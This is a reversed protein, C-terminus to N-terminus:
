GTLGAHRTAWDGVLKLVRPDITTEIKGYEAPSGTTAPQMLHNIGPIETVTHDKNRKLAREMPLRNQAPPVQLDLSGYIVLIPQRARELVPAPDYTLFHRMWPSTLQKIQGDIAAGAQELGKQEAATLGSGPLKAKAAAWLARIREGARADNSEQEVAAIAQKELDSNFAYFAASHPPGAARILEGQKELIADGRVAPAGVLVLFAVERSRVAVAPAIVAGESHGILGIHRAEIDPRQHLYAVAALADSVFDETTAKAYDGTSKGVGRKDFRLVALGRRTLADALVLFVRHGAVAEDRTNPGSGAILLVAPFPGSGHPKTLTGALTIHAAPNEFSVDEVSYPYPPSPDQPRKPPAVSAATAPKLTLPLSIGGQTWTGAISQGDAALTGEFTGQIVKVDCRVQDKDLTVTDIPIGAAGQDPSDLTGKWQGDGTASFHFVVRLTGTPVSLTGMWTGTLPAAASAAAGIGAFLFSALLALVTHGRFPNKM